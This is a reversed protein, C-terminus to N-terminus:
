RGLWNKMGLAFIIKLASMAEGSHIKSKGRQREVFV